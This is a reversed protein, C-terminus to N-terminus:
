LMNLNKQAADLLSDVNTFDDQPPPPRPAGLSAMFADMGIDVDYDEM